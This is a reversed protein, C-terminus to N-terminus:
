LFFNNSYHYCYICAFYSVHFTVRPVHFTVHSMHCTVFPPFYVNKLFLWTRLEYPKPTLIDQYHRFLKNFYTKRHQIEDLRILITELLDQFTGAALEQHECIKYTQRPTIIFLSHNNHVSICWESPLNELIFKNQASLLAPEFYNCLIKKKKWFDLYTLSM